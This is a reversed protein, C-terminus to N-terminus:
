EASVDGKLCRSFPAHARISRIAEKAEGLTRVVSAAGGTALIKKLHYAQISSLKGTKTKLELGFFVGRCSGVIDPVGAAQYAGGHIKLFWVDPQRKLWDLISKQLAAESMGRM